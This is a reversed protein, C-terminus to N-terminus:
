NTKAMAELALISDEQAEQQVSAKKFDALFEKQVNLLVQKQIEQITRAEEAQITKLKQKIQLAISHELATQRKLITAKIQSETVAFIESIEKYLVKQKEHYAILMKLFNERVTFYAEFEKRIKDSRDALEESVSDSVNIYAFIIFSAFTLLVLTEENYLIIEKSTLFSIGLITLTVWFNFNLTM